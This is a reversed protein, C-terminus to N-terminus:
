DLLVLPIGEEERLGRFFEPDVAFDGLITETM